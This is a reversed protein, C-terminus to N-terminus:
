LLTNKHVYKYEQPTVGLVQKFVKCFHSPSDFGSQQAVDLLRPEGERIMKAALAVRQANKYQTFTQGLRKTFTSSLYNKNIYLAKAMEDLTFNSDLHEDIYQMAKGLSDNCYTKSGSADRQMLESRIRLLLNQSKTDDLPKLLYYFAQYRFAEQVYSFDDYGSVLVFLLPLQNERIRRLMDLGSSANMRIDSVVLDPVDRLIAALGSEADGYEGVVDFGNQAFGFSTKVDERSWVDDDVIIVRYLCDGGTRTPTYPNAAPSGM